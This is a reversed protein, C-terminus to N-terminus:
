RIGNATYSAAIEPAYRAGSKGKNGKEGFEGEALIL